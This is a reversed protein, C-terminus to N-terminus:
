KVNSTTGAQRLTVFIELHHRRRAAKLGDPELDTGARRGYGPIM